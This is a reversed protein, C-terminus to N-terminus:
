FRLLLQLRLSAIDFVEEELPAALEALVEGEIEQLHLADDGLKALAEELDPAM